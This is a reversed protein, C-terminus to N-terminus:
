EDTKLRAFLLSDRRVGRTLLHGRLRGEYRFGARQLVQASRANDPHCTAEIRYLDDRALAYATLCRLADTAYGHGWHEPLLGYGVEARQHTRDRVDLDIMGMMSGSDLSAIVFPLYHGSRSASLAKAFYAQAEDHTQPPWGTYETVTPDSTYRLVAALDDKRLFRVRVLDGSLEM